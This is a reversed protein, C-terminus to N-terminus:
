RLLVPSFQLGYLRIANDRFVMRAIEIARPRTVEGDEIMETLAIAVADRSKETLLWQKEEYDSLPTNEDSYADTGFLVKEPHWGLWGRIVEALAHTTLYFTAASFDAYTNPKDLMAQTVLHYPWGGHLLVFRANGLRECGLAEELLGPNSTTNDFYPGSGNGTHVHVVLGHEAARASVEVFLYDELAKEDASTLKTGAVGLVYARAAREYPVVAFDLGRWYAAFIKVAPVQAAAWQTLTPDVVKAIFENLTGPLAEVGAQHMLDAITVPGGPYSALAHDKSFPALLPDAFPIWRFRASEQGAGLHVANVFAVQVGSIDLVKTPWSDGAVAMRRRKVALLEALHAPAFDAYKYGYLAKWARIWQPDNRRLPAVDPYSAAGLPSDPRWGSGRGVTVPDDHNHNDIAEIRAIEARLERDMPDKAVAPATLWLASACFLIRAICSIATNLRQVGRCALENPLGFAVPLGCIVLKAASEAVRQAATSKRYVNVGISRYVLGRDWNSYLARKNVRLARHRVDAKSHTLVEAFDERGL